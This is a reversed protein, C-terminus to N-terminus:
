PSLELYRIVTTSKPRLRVRLVINGTQTLVMRAANTVQIQIPPLAHGAQIPLDTQSVPSIIAVNTAAGQGLVVISSITKTFYPSSIRLQIVSSVTVRTACWLLGGKCDSIGQSPGFLQYYSGNAMAARLDFVNQCQMVANLFQDRIFASLCNAGSANSSWILSGENFNEPIQGLIEIHFPDGNIVTINSSSSKALHFTTVSVDVFCM